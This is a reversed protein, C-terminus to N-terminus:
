MQLIATSTNGTKTVDISPIGEWEQVDTHTILLIQKFSVDNVLNSVVATRRNKDLGGLPEDLLVCRVRPSIAPSDKFPRISSMTRSIGLRLGLSIATRDGFSLQSAKKSANDREDKIKLALGSGSKGRGRTPELDVGSYQDNTFARVYQNTASRIIGILRKQVVYDSVFGSVLKLRAYNAHERLNKYTEIQAGIERMRVEKKKLDDIQEHETEINKAITESDKQLTDLKSRQVDIRTELELVSKAGHKELLKEISGVGSKELLSKLEQKSKEIQEQYKDLEEQTDRVRDLADLARTVAKIRQEVNELNEILQKRSGKLKGTRKVGQDIIAHYDSVIKDREEISLPKACTPCEVVDTTDLADIGKLAEIKEKLDRETGRIAGIEVDLKSLSDRIETVEIELKKLEKQLANDRANIVKLSSSVLGASELEQNRSESIRNMDRETQELHVIMEHFSKLQDPDPLNRLLDDIEDMEDQKDKLNSEDRSIREEFSKIQSQIHEPRIYEDELTSIRAELDSELYGLQNSMEELLGINYVKIILNRLVSPTANAILAVEGQRVLLTNLAQKLELNLIETIKTSVSRSKDAIRKWANNQKTYLMVAMGNAPDYSRDIKFRTGGVEFRLIVKCFSSTFSILEDNTLDVADAGWIAWLIAEFISSKGTSNNGKILILGDPLDGDDAPLQLQKFPKFNQAEVGLIKL